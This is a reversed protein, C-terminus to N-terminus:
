HLHRNSCNLLEDFNSWASWVLCILVRRSYPLPTLPPGPKLIASFSSWLPSCCCCCCCVYSETISFNSNKRTRFFTMKSLVQNLQRFWAGPSDASSYIMARYLSASSQSYPLIFDLIIWSLSITPILSVFRDFLSWNSGFSVKSYALFATLCLFAFLSSHFSRDVELVSTSVTRAVRRWAVLRLWVSVGMLLWLAFLIGDVSTKNNKSIRNHRQHLHIPLDFLFYM